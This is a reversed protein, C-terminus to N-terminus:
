AGGRDPVVVVGSRHEMFYREPTEAVVIFGLRDCLARAPNVRLVRLRLPKDAARARLILQRLLETGIGRRQFEPDVYLKDLHLQEPQDDVVMMGVRGGNQIVLFARRRAVDEEISARAAHEHWEGGWTEEVYRRMTTETLRYLYEADDLGAPTLRLM